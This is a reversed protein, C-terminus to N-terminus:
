EGVRRALEQLQIVGLLLARRLVDNVKKTAWESDSM